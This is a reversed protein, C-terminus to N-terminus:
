FRFTGMDLSGLNDTQAFVYMLLGLLSRTDRPDIIGDIVLESALTLAREQKTAEKHIFDAAGSEPKIAKKKIMAM